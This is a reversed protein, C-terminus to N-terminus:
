ETDRSLAAHSYPMYHASREAVPDILCDVSYSKFGVAHSNPNPQCRASPQSNGSQIPPLMLFPGQFLHIRSIRLLRNSPSVKPQETQADTEEKGRKHRM